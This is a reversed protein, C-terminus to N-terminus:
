EKDVKLDFKVRMTEVLPNQDVLMQYKEKNTLIVRKEFKKFDPFKEVDIQISYEVKDLDFTERIALKLNDEQMIMDKIVNNPVYVTFHNDEKEPKINKIATRVSQSNIKNIEEDWFSQFADVSWPTKEKTIASEEKIQQTLSALNLLSPAAKPIASINSSEKNDAESPADVSPTEQREMTVVEPEEEVPDAIPTPDPTVIESPTVDEKTVPSPASEDPAEITPTVAETVMEPEPLTIPKKQDELSAPTETKRISALDDSKATPKAKLNKKEIVEVTSELYCIKALAIETHLRKNKSRPLNIDAHNLINLANLFTSKEFLNAQNKYRDYVTKSGQFLSDSSSMQSIMLERFHRSLGEIFQEPDFGNRQVEDFIVLVQEYDQKIFCDAIKFFYDYDLINLNDIVAKYSIDGQTTSSIKDFISLADRMAGDAKQGIIELAEYSATLGEQKCINQLQVIIDEVQIRKFDFTQCRSLITPLIKHKETTALIFTVYDPPEELTKLFANFASKTLMHVEDIIFIKHTGEQPRFRVQEILNRIDDVSNNSAADLELINFSANDNLAKCSSCENCPNVGDQVNQCNLVKALIRACTTKGVGRPGCFLFAHALQNKTIANKLTDAVHKQGIVESFTQPRYKRASVVYNSM